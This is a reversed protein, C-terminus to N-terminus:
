NRMAKQWLTTDDAHRFNGLGCFNYSKIKLFIIEFTHFFHCSEFQHFISNFIVTNVTCLLIKELTGSSAQISKGGFM